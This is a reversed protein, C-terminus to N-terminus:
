EQVNANPPQILAATAGSPDRILCMRGYSGMERIQGILTGGNRVCAAASQEMDAVTIYILWGAPMSENDGRAHCIGAVPEGPKAGDSSTPLMCFDAYDGMPVESSEWGVVAQYFDRLQEANEVTLDCWRIEGPRDIM